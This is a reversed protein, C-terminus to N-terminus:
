CLGQWIPNPLNTEMLLQHNEPDLQKNVLPYLDDSERQFIGHNEALHSQVLQQIEPNSGLFRPIGHYNGM